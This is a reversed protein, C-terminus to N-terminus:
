GRAVALMIVMNVVSVASTVAPQAINVKLMTVKKVLTSVFVKENLEVDLVKKLQM